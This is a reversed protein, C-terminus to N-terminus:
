EHKDLFYQKLNKNEDPIQNNLTKSIIEENLLLILKGKKLVVEEEIKISLYFLSSKDNISQLKINIIINENPLFPRTYNFNSFSAVIGGFKNATHERVLRGATQFCAENILFWPVIKIFNFHNRFFEERKQYFIRSVAKDRSIELFEVAQMYNM